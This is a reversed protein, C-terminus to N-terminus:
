TGAALVIYPDTILSKLSPPEAETYVVSPQLVLLQLVSLFSPAFLLLAFYGLLRAVFSFAIM